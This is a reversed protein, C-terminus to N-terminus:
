RGNLANNTSNIISQDVTGTASLTNIIVEIIIRAGIVVAVGVVIWFLWEKLEKMKTSDGRALIFQLGVWILALVAFLIVIYSFIEVFKQVLSGVSDINKLPNQLKVTGNSDNSSQAYTVVPMMIVLLVLIALLVNSRQSNFKM